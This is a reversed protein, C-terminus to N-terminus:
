PAMKLAIQRDVENKYAALDIANFEAVFEAWIAEFEEDTEALAMRPYYKTGTDSVKVSAVAAPSGDEITMSWVPYYDLREVPPNMLGAPYLTDYKALFDKEYDSLAAAYEDASEAAGSPAGDALYIGQWKPSYNWLTTGTLDRKKAVDYMIARREPTLEKSNNPKAIWDIGEEGWQLYDQVERQLLWDYFALLREPNECNTTIGIGNVGTSNGNPKDIYGDEVGPVTLPVSIWTRNFKGEDKLSM